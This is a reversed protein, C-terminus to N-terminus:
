QLLHQCQAYFLIKYVCLKSNKMNQLLMCLQLNSSTNYIIINIIDGSNIQKGHLYIKKIYHGHMYIIVYMRINRHTALGSAFSFFYYLSFLGLM